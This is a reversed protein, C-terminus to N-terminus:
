SDLSENTTKLLLICAGIFSVMINICPLVSHTELIVIYKDWYDIKKIANAIIFCYIGPVIWYILFWITSSITSTIEYSYIISVIYTLIVTLSIIINKIM